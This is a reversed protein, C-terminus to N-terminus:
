RPLLRDIAGALHELEDGGSAAYRIVGSEDIVVYLPISLGVGEMSGFMKWLFDREGQTRIVQPFPLAKERLIKQAMALREPEDVNIGIVQVRDGYKKTLETVASLKAVCPACWSAWFDLVHIKRRFDSSQILQGATSIVSFEPAPSGVLAPRIESVRFTISAGTPDLAAVQLPLGCVDLIENARRHEGAGQFLGDNNLDLGISTAGKGDQEDFVGDGNFDLVMVNIECAPLKLRGAARYEPEWGLAENVVGDREWRVYYIHYVAFKWEGLRRPLVVRSSQGPLLILAEPEAGPVTLHIGGPPAAIREARIALGGPLMAHLVGDANATLPVSRSASQTVGLAIKLPARYEQSWSEQSWAPAFVCFMAWFWTLWKM